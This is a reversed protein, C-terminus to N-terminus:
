LLNINSLKVHSTNFNLYNEHFILKIQWLCYKSVNGAKLCNYSYKYWSVGWACHCYWKLSWSIVGPSIVSPSIIGPSIVGPSITMSKWWPSTKVFNLLITYQLFIPPKYGAVMRWTQLSSSYQVEALAETCYETM